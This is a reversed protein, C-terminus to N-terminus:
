WYAYRTGWSTMSHKTCPACWITTIWWISSTKRVVVPVPRVVLYDHLKQPSHKHKHRMRKSKIDVEAKGVAFQTPSLDGIKLQHIGGPQADKPCMPYKSKCILKSM